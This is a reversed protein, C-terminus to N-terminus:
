FPAMPRAPREFGKSCPIPSPSFGTGHGTADARHARTSDPQKPNCSSTPPLNWRFSFVPPLGIAFLYRSPFICLVKFLSNFLAQFQCSSVRIRGAECRRSLRARAEEAVALRRPQLARHMKASCILRWAPTPIHRPVLGRCTGRPAAAPTGASPIRADSGDLFASWPTQCTRSYEPPLGTHAIFTFPAGVGVSRSRSHLTQTSCVQRSGFSPSSHRSLTFGSSVRTSARLSVSTCITRRIQTYPRFVLRVM